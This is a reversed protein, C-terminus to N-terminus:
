VGHSQMTGEEGGRCYSAVKLYQKRDVEHHGSRPNKTSYARDIDFAQVGALRMHVFHVTPPDRHNSPKVTRAHTWCDAVSCIHVYCLGLIQM